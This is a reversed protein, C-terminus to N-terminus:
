VTKQKEAITAVRKATPSRTTTMVLIAEMWTLRSVTNKRNLSEAVLSNM